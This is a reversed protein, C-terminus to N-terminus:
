EYSLLDEKKLVITMSTGEGVSSRAQVEGGHKEVIEKVISLGLGSGGFERSRSKDVRYLREFIFPLEAEPIGEGEDRVTVAVRGDKIQVSMYMNSHPPAHKIANDLLNLLVQQFREADVNVIVKADCTIHLALDYELLIPNMKEHVKGLLDCLSVPRKDISFENQDMKALDFLNKVLQTVHETEEKIIGLYHNREEETIGTRSAITSYGKIYTLPTRLEHSISALFDKRDQKLRELENSLTVISRALQGLEDNHKYSLDVQGKGEALGETAKKMRVLPRTIFHSLIFIAVITLLLAIFGVLLFQNTLQNIVRQVAMTPSFMYVYGTKEGEITIPSVAAVYQSTRWEEDLVKGSHSVNSLPEDLRAQIEPSLPESNVIVEKNEDTIVVLSEAESEMLAVHNLTSEDFRKELVDRHSNGRALLNELVEEVRSNALNTYLFLFLIAEVIIIITFIFVGLKFSLKNM